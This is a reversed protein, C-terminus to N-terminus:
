KKKGLLKSLKSKLRSAKKKHIIRKKATKDIESFARSLLDKSKAAKGSRIKYLLKKYSAKQKTRRAERKKDQKVKKKASKIVPM